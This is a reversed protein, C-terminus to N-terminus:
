ILYSLLPSSLLPSLFLFSDTSFKRLLILDYKFSIMFLRLFDSKHFIWNVIVILKIEEFSLLLFCTICEFLSVYFYHNIIFCIFILNDKIINM